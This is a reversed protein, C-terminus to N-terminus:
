PQVWCQCLLLRENALADLGFGSEQMVTDHLHARCCCLWAAEESLLMRMMLCQLVGVGVGM